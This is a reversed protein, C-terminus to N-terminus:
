VTKKADLWRRTLGRQPVVVGIRGDFELFFYAGMHTERHWERVIEYRRM